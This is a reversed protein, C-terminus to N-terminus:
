CDQRRNEDDHTPRRNFQSTARQDRKHVQGVRKLGLREIARDVTDGDCGFRENRHM